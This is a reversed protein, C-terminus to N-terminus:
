NEIRVIKWMPLLIIPLAALTILMTTEIGHGDLLPKAAIMFGGSILMSYMESVSIITGRESSKIRHHIYSHFVLKCLAQSAAVVAVIACLAYVEAMNVTHLSAIVALMAIALMAVCLYILNKAGMTKHLLHAYKSFALRFFTNIGVFLGFLAVPVRVAEMMPQLIWMLVLTFGGFIAPFLMLWKIEPHTASMKVIGIMDRLPSSEPAAKRKVERLEPLSWACMVALLAAAAEILIVYDGVIAYMSGGLLAAIFSAAQSYTRISGNERLFNKERKMRKLLDYAYSEQTGSFLANAMGLGMECAAIQWFGYAWFLGAIAAFWVISGALLVRRRSITDSLYGSPIEFLFSAARALGLILFFDGVSIGKSQYLLVIVPFILLFSKFFANWKLLRLAKENSVGGEDRAAAGRHLGTKSLVRSARRTNKM